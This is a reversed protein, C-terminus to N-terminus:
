AGGEEPKRRVGERLDGPVEPNGRSRGGKGWHGRYVKSKLILIDNKSLTLGFGSNQNRDSVSGFGLNASVKPRYWLRYWFWMEFPSDLLWYHFLKAKTRPIKEMM